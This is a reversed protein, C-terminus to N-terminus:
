EPFVRYEVSIRDSRMGSSLHTRHLVGGGFVLLDGFALEPIWFSSAPFRQRLLADNLESFHLLSPQPQCIFELGPRDVGCPDLPVWCTVLPVPPLPLGPDVPFHVGLAGDQHWGQIQHGSAAHLPAFKKRVWSHELRCRWRAGILDSFLDGLPAAALPAVLDRETQIGFDILSTLLLSHAQSIFRYRAPIPELREIAQFCRVTADRLSTLTHQDLLHRLLIVGDEQLKTRLEEVPIKM